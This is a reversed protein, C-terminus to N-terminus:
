RGTSSSFELMVLIPEDTVDFLFPFFGDELDNFLFVSNHVSSVSTKVRDGKSGNKIDFSGSITM